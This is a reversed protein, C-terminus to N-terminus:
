ITHPALWVFPEYPMNRLVAYGVLVVFAIKPTIPHQMWRPKFAMWILLPAALIALPNYALAQLFNGHLLAHLARTIGCGPCYVDFLWYSPCKPFYNNAASPDFVYLLALALGLTLTGLAWCAFRTM